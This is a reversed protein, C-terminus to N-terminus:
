CNNTYPDNSNQKENDESVLISEFDICIMFAFKIKRWCNKFRVYQGKKSVKIKPKGNIKFHKKLM